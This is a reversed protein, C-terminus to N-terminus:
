GCLASLECLRKSFLEFGWLYHAVFNEPVLDMAEQLLPELDEIPTGHLADVKDTLLKSLAYRVEKNQPNDRVASRLKEIEENMQALTMRVPKAADSKGTGSAVTDSAVPDISLILSEAGCSFPIILSICNILSFQLCGIKLIQRFPFM